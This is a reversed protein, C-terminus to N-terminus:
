ESSAGAPRLAPGRAPTARRFAEIAEILRAPCEIHVAHGCGSLVTLTSGPVAAAMARATSLDFLGDREGWIIATPMALHALDADDFTDAEETATLIKKVGPSTYSDLFTNRSVRLLWPTRVFLATYLRDVGSLDSITVLRQVREWDQARYGGADILVLRSVLDPRALALRVAMWGGLSLGAVTVPRGGWEHEILRAVVAAGHRVDLGGEPAETGGLASLEPVLIRCTRRLARMVPSWTSGISGLGHLFVWPEGDLPGLTSYALSVPPVSLRARRAGLAFRLFIAGLLGVLRM